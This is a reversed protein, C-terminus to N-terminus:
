CKRMLTERFDSEALKLRDPHVIYAKRFNAGIDLKFDGNPLKGIVKFPGAWIDNRM